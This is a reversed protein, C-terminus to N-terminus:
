QSLIRAESIGLQHVKREGVRATELNPYPGVRIRVGGDIGDGSGKPVPETYVPLGATKLKDVMGKAKNEGAFAGVQVVYSGSKVNSHAVVSGTPANSNSHGSPHGSNLVAPPSPVSVVLSANSGSSPPAPSPSNVNEARPLDKSSIAKSSAEPLSPKVPASPVSAGSSDAAPIATGSSNLGPSPFPSPSPASSQAVIVVPVPAPPPESDMLQPLFILLLLGLVVIGMLRYKMRRKIQAIVLDANTDSSDTSSM